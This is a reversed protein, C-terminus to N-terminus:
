AFANYADTARQQLSDSPTQGWVQGWYGPCPPKVGPGASGSEAFAEGLDLLHRTMITKYVGADDAYETVGKGEEMGVRLFVMFNALNMHPNETQGLGANAQAFTKGASAAGV